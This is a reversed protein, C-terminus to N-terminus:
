PKVRFTIKESVTINGATDSVKLYATHSGDTATLHYVFPASTQELVMRGDVWWEVSGIGVSDEVLANLTVGGRVPQVEAGKVPYSIVVEPPTNDVTVQIVATRILNQRDLVTLRIAYLGNLDTTDWTALLGDTVPRTAASGVQQWTAPNIGAGVQVQFSSFKEINATGRIAVRGSVASFLGPESINVQPDTRLMQIADYGQPLLHIGAAQAWERAESPVNLYTREEILDPPTFVTALLGTERNVDAKIYLTDPMSPENGYLFVDTVVNPCNATPLMGSPSCVKMETIGTPVRWENYPLDRTAYKFLAHWLGAPARESLTAGSRGRSGMWILVVRDPNYGVAWVQRHDDASGVKAAVPKGVELENPYGLSPWRASEDSFVHNVLFALPEDLIVLKQAAASEMLVAGNFTKVQRVTQPLIMGTQLDLRGSRVGMNAFTSFATGLQLLETDFGAFIPQAGAPSPSLSELGVLAASHWVNEAGMEHILKVLPSLYDNALATRLNVAGQYTYNEVVQDDVLQSPIDWILSAPSYGRSFLSLAVMPTLLSGPQYGSDNFRKGTLTMPELYALVEGSAPNMVLGAAALRGGSFDSFNQTPLLLDAECELGEPAVGTLNSYQVRMLQTMSTCVLQQQLDADLTSLVILGGRQLRQIGISSDLEKEVQRIFGEALSHRREHVERLSIEEKIALSYEEESIFGNALMEQLLARQMELATQPADIPNLAPSRLVSALLASEALTLDQASKGLYLRAASEAGYAYRGFWASNLYWEMVRSRGYDAVVQGALLRMRIARAASPPEDWLILDSVLKEALTQPEPNLGAKLRYGPNSWFDPDYVVTVARVLQPSIFEEMQPDIPLFKRQIGKEEYTFLTVEGSRDLVRTPQLLEGKERDMLLPLIEISPLDRSFRAFSAGAILFGAVVLISVIAVIFTALQTLANHATETRHIRDRRRSKLLLYLDIKRM